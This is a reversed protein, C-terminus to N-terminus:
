YPSNSIVPIKTMGILFNLISLSQSLSISKHNWQLTTLEFSFKLRNKKIYILQSQGQDVKRSVM